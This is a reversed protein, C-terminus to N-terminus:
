IMNGSLVKGKEDLVVIARAGGGFELQVRWGGPDHTATAGTPPLWRQKAYEVALREADASDIFVTSNAVPRVYGADGPPPEAPARTCASLLCVTLVLEPRM